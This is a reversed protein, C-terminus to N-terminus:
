FGTTWMDRSYKNTTSFIATSYTQLWITCAIPVVDTFFFFFFYSALDSVSRAVPEFLSVVGRVIFCLALGFCFVAVRIVINRATQNYIPENFLRLLLVAYVIYMIAMIFYVASTAYYLWDRAKDIDGNSSWTDDWTQIIVVICVVANLVALGICIPLSLTKPWNKQKKKFMDPISANISTVNAARTRLEALTFLLKFWAGICVLYAAVFFPQAFFTILDAALALKKVPSWQSYQSMNLMDVVCRIIVGIGLSM